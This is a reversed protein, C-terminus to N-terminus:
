TCIGDSERRSHTMRYRPDFQGLDSQLRCREPLCNAPIMIKNESLSEQLRRLHVHENSGNCVTECGTTAETGARLDDDLMLYATSM